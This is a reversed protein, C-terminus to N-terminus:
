NTFITFLPFIREYPLFHFNGPSSEKNGGPFLDYTQELIRERENDETTKNMRPASPHFHLSEDDAIKDVTSSEFRLRQIPSAHGSLVSGTKKGNLGISSPTSIYDRFTNRLLRQLAVREVTATSGSEERESESSEEGDLELMGNSGPNRRSM